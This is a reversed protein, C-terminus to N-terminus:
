FVLTSVLRQLAVSSYFLILQEESTAQPPEKYVCNQKSTSNSVLHMICRELVWFRFVNGEEFM